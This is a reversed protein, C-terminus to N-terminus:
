CRCIFSTMLIDNDILPCVGLHRKVASKFLASTNINQIDLPLSNWLAVWKFYPTKAYVDMHVIETNFVYRDISRTDCLGEKEFDIIM